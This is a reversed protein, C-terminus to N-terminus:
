NNQLCKRPVNECKEEVKIECVNNTVDECQEEDVLKCVEEIVKNCQTEEVTECKEVTKDECVEKVTKECKKEEVTECVNESIEKEVQKLITECLPPPLYSKFGGESSAPASKVFSIRSFALVVFLCAIFSTQLNGVMNSWPSVLVAGM